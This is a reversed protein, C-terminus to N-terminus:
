LNPTIKHKKIIHQYPAIYLSYSQAEVSAKYQFVPTLKEDYDHMEKTGGNDRM